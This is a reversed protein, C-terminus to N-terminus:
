GVTISTAFANPATDDIVHVFFTQGASTFGPVGTNAAYRGGNWVFFTFSSQGVTAGTKVNLQKAVALGKHFAHASEEEGEAKLEEVLGSAALAPAQGAVGVIGTEAQATEGDPTDLAGRAFGDERDERMEDKAIVGHAGLHGAIDQQRRM